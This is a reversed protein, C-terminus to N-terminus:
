ELLSHNRLPEKQPRITLAVLNASPILGNSPVVKKINVSWHEVRLRYIFPNIKQHITIFMPHLRLYDLM